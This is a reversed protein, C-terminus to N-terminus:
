YLSKLNYDPETTSNNWPSIQFKPCPVTGRIDYSPNKRTQGVTDVGVKQVADSLLNADEIKIGVDPNEFWKQDSKAPLLDNSNLKKQKMNESERERENGKDLTYNNNNADGYDFEIKNPNFITDDIIPVTISIQKNQQTQALTQAQAQVQTQSQTQTQGAQIQSKAGQTLAAQIQAAQIQAAQSQTQIQAAETQSRIQAAQSQIQTQPQLQMIQSPKDKLAYDKIYKTDKTDPEFYEYNNEYNLNRYQKKVKDNNSYFLKLLILVIIGIGLILLLNNDKDNCEFM